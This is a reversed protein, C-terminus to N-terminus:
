VVFTEQNSNVVALKNNPNYNKSNIYEDDSRCEDATAKTMAAHFNRCKIKNTITKLITFGIVYRKAQMEVQNTEVSQFTNLMSLIEM